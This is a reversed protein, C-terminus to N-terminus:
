RYLKADATGPQQKALAGIVIRKPVSNGVENM